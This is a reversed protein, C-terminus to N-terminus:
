FLYTSLIDDVEERRRILELKGTEVDYAIMPPAPNIFPPKLVNTYAGVNDFVVYDGRAINSKFGQYLCDGEMCTYGVLDSLETLAARTDSEKRWVTIPLNRNNLTPKVEYVSGSLLVVRRERITKVDIVQSVFQMVDATLAIGPELILEPGSGNSFKEAFPTAIAEGYEAFSPIPYGFQRQLDDSMKSFFGGGLDIFRLNYRAFHTEALALMQHAIQGYSKASRQPTLFHCHLGVILCNDLSHLRQLVSKFEPVTVDFGFRSINSGGIDFNCRLGVMLMQSPWTKAVQEVIEVEYFSDLNVVSGACLAQVIHEPRKFPGNFLIRDAIMGIRCALEYEMWSVVEAYGGSQKVIQCLRPTYNTKYSYAIQTHPYIKCFASLFEQYNAQFKALDVLYLPDGYENILDNFWQWSLRM